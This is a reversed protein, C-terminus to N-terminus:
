GRVLVRLGLVKLIYSALISCVVISAMHIPMM